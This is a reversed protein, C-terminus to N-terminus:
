SVPILIETILVEERTTKPDNVYNEVFFDDRVKLKSKKVIEIVRATAEGLQAYPGKLVFRAYKGGTFTECRLQGPLKSLVDTLAVGARYIAGEIKYRSFFHHTLKGQESLTPLTEHLEKWAQAANTPFPAVKEVYCYITKPWTVFDPAKTLDM